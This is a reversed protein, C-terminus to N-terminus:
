HRPSPGVYQKVGDISMRGQLLLHSDRSIVYRSTVGNAPNTEESGTVTCSFEVENGDVYYGVPQMPLILVVTM